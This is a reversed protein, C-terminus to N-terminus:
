KKQRVFDMLPEIHKKNTTDLPRSYAALMGTEDPTRTKKVLIKFKLLQMLVKNPFDLKSFDFGGRLYFLPLNKEEPTVFNKAKIEEVIGEFYPSAGVSFVVLKKFDEKGLQKKFQKYGNIGVAHMSGGFILSDYQSLEYTSLEEVRVCSCALDQSIWEAYKKTFGSISKYVVLHKV